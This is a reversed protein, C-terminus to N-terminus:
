KPVDSSKILRGTKSSYSLGNGADLWQEPEAAAAPEPTAVAGPAPQPSTQAPAANATPRNAPAPAGSVVGPKGGVIAYYPAELANVIEVGGAGIYRSIQDKTGFIPGLVPIDATAFMAAKTMWEQGTPSTIFQLYSALVLKNAGGILKGVPGLFPIKSFMQIMGGVTAPAAAGAVIKTVLVGMEQERVSDYEEQTWEGSKVKAEAASMQDLYFGIPEAVAKTFGWGIWLNVMGNYIQGINKGIKGVSAAAHDIANVGTMTGAKSEIDKLVKPDALHPNRSVMYQGAEKELQAMSPMKQGSIKYRRALSDIIGDLQDRMSDNIAQKVSIGRSKALNAIRAAEQEIFESKGMARTIAGSGVKNLAWGAAKKFIGAESENLPTIIETVKM